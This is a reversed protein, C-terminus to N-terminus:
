FGSRALEYGIMVVGVTGVAWVLTRVMPIGLLYVVVFVARAAAFLIAGWVTLPTSISTLQAIMVLPVFLLMGEVHNNVIRSMRGQMVSPPRAQDRPGLGWAMGNNAIAVSAQIALSLFFVIAVAFVAQLEIPM